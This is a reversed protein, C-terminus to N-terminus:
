LRIEICIALRDKGGVATVFPGTLIVLITSRCHLSVFYCIPACSAPFAPQFKVKNHGDNSKCDGGGVGSDGSSFM